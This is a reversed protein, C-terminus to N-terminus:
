RAVRESLQFTPDGLMQSGIQTDLSERLSDAHTGAIKGAAVGLRALPWRSARNFADTNVRCTPRELFGVVPDLVDRLPTAEAAFLLQTTHEGSM